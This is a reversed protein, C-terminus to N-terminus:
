FDEDFGEDDEAGATDDANEDEFAKEYKDNGTDEDFDQNQDYGEMFAEEEPSIEDNEALDERANDGYVDAEKEEQEIFDDDAM